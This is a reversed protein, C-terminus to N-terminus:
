FQFRLSFQMLRPDGALSSITGVTASSIDSNPLGFNVTNFVNFM